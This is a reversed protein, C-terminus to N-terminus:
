GEQQFEVDKTAFGGRRSIVKGNKRYTTEKFSLTKKGGPDTAIIVTDVCTNSKCKTWSATATQERAKAAEAAPQELAFISPLLAFLVITMFIPMRLLKKM